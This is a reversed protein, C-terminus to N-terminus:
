LVLRDNQSYYASTFRVENTCMDDLLALYPPWLPACQYDQFAREYLAKVAAQGGGDGSSGAATEDDIWQQWLEPSLPFAASFAERAQRLSAISKQQQLPGEDQAAAARLATVLALHAEYSRANATVAAQLAELNLTSTTDAIIETSAAAVTGADDGASEDDAPTMTCRVSGSQRQRPEYLFDFLHRTYCHACEDRWVGHKSPPELLQHMLVSHTEWAAVPSIQHELQKVM